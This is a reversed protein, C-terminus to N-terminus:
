QLAKSESFTEGGGEGFLTNNGFTRVKNLQSPGERTIFTDLYNIQCNSANAFAIGVTHFGLTSHAVVSDKVTVIASGGQGSGAVYVGDGNNELQCGAVLAQIQAASAELDIGYRCNRVESNYMSLRPITNTSTASFILGVYFNRVTCDHLTLAGVSSVSIGYGSGPTVTTRSGGGEVILGRLTVVDSIGAHITIGLNNATVTVFGNVGPPVTVALSKTINLAGYGATDLVVIQGGAAVTDHANQFNRKPAGRSGDNADNGFSAVFIKTAQAHITSPLALLLAILSSALLSYTIKM